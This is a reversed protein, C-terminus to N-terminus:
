KYDEQSYLRYCIGPATRGARGVRQIASQKSIKLEDIWHFGNVPSFMAQKSLGSDIVHTIGDITLSTEAINTAVVVKRRGARTPKLVDNQQHYQLAGFLPHIDLPAHLEDAVKQLEECCEEIEEKQM